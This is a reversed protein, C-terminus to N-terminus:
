RFGIVRRYRSSRPSPWEFPELNAGQQSEKVASAPTSSIIVDLADGATIFNDGAGNPGGSTDLFGFPQGIEVNAPVPGAGFANLYNIVDLADGAVIHDDPQNNLSTRRHRGM